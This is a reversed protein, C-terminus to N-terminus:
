EWDVRLAAGFSRGEKVVSFNGGFPLTTQQGLFAENLVNRGFLTFRPALYNDGAAIEPLLYAISGDIVHGGPLIGTNSDNYFSEDRFAWNARFTILGADRLDLDYVIGATATIPILRPIQLAEDAEDAVTPTGGFFNADLDLRVDRYEGETIGISGNIALGTVPAITVEAEFGYITADATNNIFQGVGVGPVPINVERQMDDILTYFGAASYRIKQDWLNGKIGLEFANNQEPDWPGPDEGPITNRLNYGGSRYGQSFQGYIVGADQFAYQLAVKPQVFTWSETDEFDFACDALAGAPAAGCPAGMNSGFTAIRGEKEEYTLRGGLVATLKPVIEYEAQAFAGLAIQDINGGFTGTDAEIPALPPGFLRQERYVIEQQFFYLGVTTDLSDDDLWENFWRLENSIQANDTASRAHFIRVPRADIDSLSDNVVTRYGFIDTLVGFDGLDLEAEVFLNNWEWIVSGPEDISIEFGEKDGVFGGPVLAVGGMGDPAPLFAEEVGFAANQSAPGVTDTRGREYMVHFTLNDTPTITVTPRILWTDEFGFREEQFMPNMPDFGDVPADNTFWGEDSRYQGAIRIKLLEPLLPLDVAGYARYESGGERFFPNEISLKAEAAYRDGPRKTRVVVAGGTVNRGFLIGQPGRLVEIAELDFTDLVTGGNTGLYVGNIFTGVAPEISPISSNVGLGRIQFNAVGKVTGIADLSVNPISFSLSELDQFQFAELQDEGFATVAVPADQALQGGARKTGTIKIVETASEAGGKRTRAATSTASQAAAVDAVFLLVLGATLALTSSARPRPRRTRPARAIEDIM